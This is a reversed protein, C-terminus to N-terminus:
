TTEDHPGDIRARIRAGPQAAFSLDYRVSGTVRANPGIELVQAHVDGDFKGDIVVTHARVLEADVEASRAVELHSEGELEIRGCYLGEIRLRHGEKSTLVGHMSAGAPVLPALEKRSLQLTESADSM